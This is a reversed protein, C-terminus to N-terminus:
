NCQFILAEGKSPSAGKSSAGEDARAWRCRVAKARVGAESFGAKELAKQQSERTAPNDLREVILRYMKRLLAPDNINTLGSALVNSAAEVRAQEVRAKADNRAKEVEGDGCEPSYTAGTIERGVVKEKDGEGEVAIREKTMWCHNDPAPPVVRDIHRVSSACGGLALVASLFVPALSRNMELKM